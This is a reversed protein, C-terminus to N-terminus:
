MTIKEEDDPLQDVNFLSLTPQNSADPLFQEALPVNSPEPLPSTKDCLSAQLAKPLQDISLISLTPQNSADSLLQEALPVNFPESLPSTTDSLPM